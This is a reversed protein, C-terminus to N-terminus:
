LTSFCAMEIGALLTPHNVNHGGAVSLRQVIARQATLRALIMM